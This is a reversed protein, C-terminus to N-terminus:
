AVLDKSWQPLVVTFIRHRLWCNDKMLGQSIAEVAPQGLRGFYAAFADAVPSKAVRLANVMDSMVPAIEPHGINIIREAAAVDEANAPMMRMLEKRTMM